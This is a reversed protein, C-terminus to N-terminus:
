PLPVPEACRVDDVAVAVAAAAATAAAAIPLGPSESPTFYLEQRREKIGASENDSLLKATSCEEASIL